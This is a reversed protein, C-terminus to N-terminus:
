SLKKELVVIDHHNNLGQPLYTLIKFYKSFNDRVYKESHFTTQYWDPFMGKNYDSSKFYFGKEKVAALEEEELDERCKEGHVSVTLVGGPKLIRRLEELWRFQYEENLHTFVSVAYIFDFSDGEYKTKPLANNAGFSAFDLNRSCWEIAERDIDTGCLEASPDALERMRVLTRGCGCGFDLIKRFSEIKRGALGAAAAIDEASKKGVSFFDKRSPSGHVRNRLRAPPFYKGKEEASLFKEGLEAALSRISRLRRHIKMAIPRLARPIQKKLKKKAM